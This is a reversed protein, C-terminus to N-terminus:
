REGGPLGFCFVTGTKRKPFYAEEDFNNFLTNGSGVYVHGHSVSPGCWVPGLPIEKFLKGTAADLAVLIGSGVTTFYAVGNALAVGSAVPDGANAFVPKPSPGGLTVRPREHRWHETLLDLSTATVRGGTPAIASRFPHDGSGLQIADVGNTFFSKGDTACGTQLGGIVGPLALTRPDAPPSLPDGPPGAYVPTHRVIKGNDARLLYFGGNKCGCGVCKTAVGDVAVTVIKPTDGISQDKYRGTKSDYGRMANTWVDGPNLQTNWKLKGTHVDIARVACSDPTSLEPNDKTPQRPGTNVDTGFFITGTEADFSPTCWISSTAPGNMFKHPGWDDTVVVPPSLFRPEPGVYHKWAVKGTKPDFAIVFGRGTSAPYLPIVHAVVQELTGGGIIVKGDALIPSSFFAALPHSGRFKDGRASVKWREKGTERELCYVWGGIDGFYVADETVLASGLVGNPASQFRTTRTAPDTPRVIPKPDAGAYAPNRYAWKLTGNANLAYFAPDSATGFYVCGGVVIPTGHVVGIEFEAGKPPFRWQEELRGVNAPGLTKEADNYRWGLLDRNYTPWDGSDSGQAPGTAVIGFVIWSYIARM